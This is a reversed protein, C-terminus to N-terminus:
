LVCNCWWRIFERQCTCCVNMIKSSHPYKLPCIRVVLLISTNMFANTLARLLLNSWLIIVVYYSSFVIITIRQLVCHLQQFFPSSGRCSGTVVLVGLAVRSSVCQQVTSNFLTCRVATSVTSTIKINSGMPSGHFIQACRLWMDFPPFM